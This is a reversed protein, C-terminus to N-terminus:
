NHRRTSRTMTLAISTAEHDGHLFNNAIERIARTAIQAPVHGTRTAFNIIAQEAV